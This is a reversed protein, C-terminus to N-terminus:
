AGQLESSGGQSGLITCEICVRDPLSQALFTQRKEEIINFTKMIIFQLLQECVYSEYVKIQEQQTM